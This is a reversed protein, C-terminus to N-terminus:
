NKLAGLQSLGSAKEAQYASRFEQVKSTDYGNERLQSELTKMLGNFRSDFQTMKGQAEKKLRSKEGADETQLYKAATDFFYNAAESEMATLTSETGAILDDYPVKPAGGQTETEAAAKGPQPKPEAPAKDPVASQQQKGQENQASAPATRLLSPSPAPSVASPQADAKPSVAAATTQDEAKPSATATSPQVDTKPSTTEAPPQVTSEAQRFSEHGDRTFYGSGTEIGLWLLTLTIITGAGYLFLRSIRNM